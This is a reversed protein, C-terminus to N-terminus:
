IQTKIVKLKARSIKDEFIHTKEFVTSSMLKDGYGITVYLICTSLSM